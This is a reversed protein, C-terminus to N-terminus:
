YEIDAAAAQDLFWRTDGNFPNVCGAPLLKSGPSSNLIRAVIEAKSSGNVVWAIHRAHNIVPLTLTIRHSPPKPADMVPCVWARTENLVPHGPFLSATHGDPGIGLMVLDFRPYQDPDPKLVAELVSAYLQATKDSAQSTDIAYIQDEPIPLRNIFHEKAVGHNSEPSQWSVMREDAWFVHWTSWDVDGYPLDQDLAGVLTNILSGGSLALCFRERANACLAALEIIHSMLAQSLKQRDEYVSVQTPRNM